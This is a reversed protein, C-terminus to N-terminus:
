KQSQWTLPAKEFVSKMDSLYIPISIGIKSPVDIKAIINNGFMVHGHRTVAMQSNIAKSQVGAEMPFLNEVSTYAEKNVFAEISSFDFNLNTWAGKESLISFGTNEQHMARNYQRAPKRYIMAAFKDFQFVRRGPLVYNVEYGAKLDIWIDFGASDTCRIAEAGVNVVKFIRDGTEKFKLYNNSFYKIIDERNQYNFIM